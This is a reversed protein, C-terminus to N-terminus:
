YAVSLPDVDFLESGQCTCTAAGLPNPGYQYVSFHYDAAAVDGWSKADYSYCYFRKTGLNTSPLAWNHKELKIDIWDNSGNAAGDRCNWFKIVTSANDLNQDVWTRSNFNRTVNYMYSSFSGEALM